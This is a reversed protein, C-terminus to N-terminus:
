LLNWVEYIIMVWLIMVWLCAGIVLALTFGRFMNRIPKDREDAESFYKYAPDHEM